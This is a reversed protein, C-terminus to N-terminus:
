KVRSRAIQSLEKIQNSEKIQGISEAEQSRTLPIRISQCVFDMKEGCSLQPSPSSVSQSPICTCNHKSMHGMEDRGKIGMWEGREKM